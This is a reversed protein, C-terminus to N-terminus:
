LLFAASRASSPFALSHNELIAPRTRLCGLGRIANRCVFRRLEQAMAQVQEIVGAGGAVRGALQHGLHLAPAGRQVLGDRGAPALELGGVLGDAFEHLLHLAADALGLAVDALAQSAHDRHEAIARALQLLHQGADGLDAIRHAHQREVGGDLRRPGSFGAAAERHHALFDRAGEPSSSTLIPTQFETFGADIMCRRISSIVQSRLVINSHVRDRRLDLFRYRLRVEEGADEDSNVQLPVVEAASQIVYDQIQLEIEGTALKPNATEAPRKVVKGTVTVVSEVRTQEVAKFLPSSVDLVCQTLGYHDRLDIFVLNGHDRKRHVWGSLRVQQGVDALRLAGCTHTRYAHM